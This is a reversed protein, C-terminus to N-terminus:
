TDASKEWANEQGCLPCYGVLLADRVIECMCGRRVPTANEIYVGSAIKYRVPTYVNIEEGCWRCRHPGHDVLDM